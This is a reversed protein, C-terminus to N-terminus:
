LWYGFGAVLVLGSTLEFVATGIQYAAWGWSHLGTLPYPDDVARAFLAVAVSSVAWLVFVTATTAQLRLRRRDAAAGLFPPRLWAALCARALDVTVKWSGGCGPVLASLEEGYRRRFSPPFSALLLRQWRSPSM